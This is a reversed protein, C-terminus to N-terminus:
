TREPQSSYDKLNAFEIVYQFKPVTNRDYGYDRQRILEMALIREQPTRSHWFERDTVGSEVAARIEEVAKQEPTTM